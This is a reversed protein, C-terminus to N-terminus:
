STLCILVVVAHAQVKGQELSFCSTIMRMLVGM